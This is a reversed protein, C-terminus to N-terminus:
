RKKTRAATLDYSMALLAVIEADEASGDLLATIWRDKNMHYAPLFGNRGRLSGALLPDCKLNVIDVHGERALGLTRYPVNMTIAFWKRNDTHRYVSSVDDMRFPHDPEVSYTDFIFANLEKLKM